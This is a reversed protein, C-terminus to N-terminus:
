VIHTAVTGTFMQRRSARVLVTCFLLPLGEVLDVDVLGTGWGYLSSRASVM